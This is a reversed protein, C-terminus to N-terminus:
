PRLLERIGNKIHTCNYKFHEMASNRYDKVTFYRRINSLYIKELFPLQKYRNKYEESDYGDNQLVDSMGFFIFFGTWLIVMLLKICSYSTLLFLYAVINVVYTIMGYIVYKKLYRKFEIYSGDSINKKGIEDTKSLHKVETIRYLDISISILPHLLFLCVSFLIGFQFIVKINSVVHVNKYFCVMVLYLLITLITCMSFWKTVNYAELFSKKKHCFFWLGEKKNMTKHNWANSVFLFGYIGLLVIKFIM